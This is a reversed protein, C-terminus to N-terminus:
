GDQGEVKATPHDGGALGSASRCLWVDVDRGGGIGQPHVNLLQPGTVLPVVHAKGGIGQARGRGGDVKSGSTLSPEMEWAMRSLAWSEPGFAEKQPRGQIVEAQRALSTAQLEKVHPYNRWPPTPGDPIPSNESPNMIDM